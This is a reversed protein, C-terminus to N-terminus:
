KKHCSCDTNHVFGDHGDYGGTGHFWIYDHGEYTNKKVKLSYGTNYKIITEWNDETKPLGNTNNCSTVSCFFLINFLIISIKKMKNLTLLM